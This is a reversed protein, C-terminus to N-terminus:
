SVAEDQKEELNKLVRQAYGFSHIAYFYIDDVNEPSKCLRCMFDASLARGIDKLYKVTPNYDKFLAVSDRIWSLVTIQDLISRDMPCQLKQTLAATLCNLCFNRECCSMIVFPSKLVDICIPCILNNVTAIRKLSDADTALINISDFEKGCSSVPCPCNHDTTKQSTWQM